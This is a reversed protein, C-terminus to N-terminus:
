VIQNDHPVKSFSFLIKSEHNLNKSKKSSNFNHTGSHLEVFRKTVIIGVLPLVDHHHRKSNLKSGVFNPM